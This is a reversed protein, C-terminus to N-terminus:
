AAEDAMERYFTFGKGGQKHLLRDFWSLEVCETSINKVPSGPPNCTGKSALESMVNKWAKEGAVKESDADMCRTTFFGLREVEQTAVNRLYVPGGEVM